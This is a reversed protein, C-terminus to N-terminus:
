GVKAVPRKGLIDEPKIGTGELMKAKKDWAEQRAEISFGGARPKRELRKGFAALAKEQNWGETLIDWGAAERAPKPLLATFVATPFGGPSTEKEDDFEEEAQMMATEIFALFKHAEVQLNFGTKDSKGKITLKM